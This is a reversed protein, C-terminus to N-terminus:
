HQLLSVTLSQLACSRGVKKLAEVEGRSTGLDQRLQVVLAQEKALGQTTKAVREELEQGSLSLTEEDSCLAAPRRCM